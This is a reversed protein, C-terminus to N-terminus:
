RNSYRKTEKIISLLIKCHVKYYNQLKPDNYNKIHQYLDAKLCCLVTITLTICGNNQIITSTKKM